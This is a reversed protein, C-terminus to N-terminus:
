LRVFVIQDIPVIRYSSVETERRPSGNEHVALDCHDRGVRDLTGHLTAGPLSLELAARRRCLDRLVFALSLRDTIGRGSTMGPPPTLSQRVQRRTLLLSALGAVPLVCQASNRSEDVIDGALWDRGFTLPRVPVVAGTHLLVRVVGDEVGPPFSAIAAMRDRLSLRGLRLREEEALLDGEELTRGQELQGELDDFLNDWRM